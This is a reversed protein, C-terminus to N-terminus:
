QTLKKAKVRRNNIKHLLKEIYTPSLKFLIRTMKLTDAKAIETILFKFKKQRVSSNHIHFTMFVKRKGWKM